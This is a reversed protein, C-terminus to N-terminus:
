DAPLYRPRSNAPKYSRGSPPSPSSSSSSSSSPYYVCIREYWCGRELTFSTKLSRAPAQVEKLGLLDVRVRWSYVYVKVDEYRCRKVYCGSFPQASTRESSERQEVEVNCAVMAAASAHFDKEFEPPVYRTCSVRVDGFSAAVASDLLSAQSLWGRRIGWSAAERGDVIFVLRETDFISKPKEIVFSVTHSCLRASLQYTTHTEVWWSAYWIVASAFLALGASLATSLAAAGGSGAIAAKLSRVFALATRFEGLAALGVNYADIATRVQQRLQEEEPSSPPNRACYAEFAVKATVGGAMAILDWNKKVFDKVKLAASADEAFSEFASDLRAQKPEPWESIFNYIDGSEVAERFAARAEPDKVGYWDAVSGILDMGYRSRYNSDLTKLVRLSESDTIVVVGNEKLAKILPKVEKDGAITPDIFWVVLTGKGPKEALAIDQLMEKVAHHLNGASTKTEVLVKFPGRSFRYDFERKTHTLLDEVVRDAFNEPDKVVGKFLNAVYQKVGEVGGFKKLVYVTAEGADFDKKANVRFIASLAALFEQLFDTPKDPRPVSLAPVPLSAIWGAVLLAVLLAPTVKREAM